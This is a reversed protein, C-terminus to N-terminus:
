RGDEEDDNEVVPKYGPGIGLGSITRWVNLVGAAAGLFFFAVLFWPKTGLWSDLLLGIGVGVALAAVLEIGIRFAFGIGSMSQGSGSKGATSRKEVRDQVARLRADLDELSPSKREDM